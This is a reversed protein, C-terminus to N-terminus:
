RGAEPGPSPRNSVLLLGRQQTDTRESWLDKLRVLFVPRADLLHLEGRYRRWLQERDRSHLVVFRRGDQDLFAAVQEVDHLWRVQKGTYYVFGQGVDRWLGIADGERWESAIRRALPRVPKFRELDHPVTHVALLMYCAASSGALAACVRLPRGKLQYAVMLLAGAALVAAPLMHVSLLPREMVRHLFLVLLAATAPLLGATLWCALAPARPRKSECARDFVLGVLLAIAPYLPLLYHPLKYRSSSFVVLVVLFWCVAFLGSRLLRPELSRRDRWLMWLAAPMFFLTWPAADAPWVKFFYLPGRQPGPFEAAGYRAVLEHFLAADLYARGHLMLMALYWPLAVALALPVGWLARLRRVGHWQRSACLWVLWVGLPLLGVPGKTLVALGVGAWGILAFRLRADQLSRAFGYLALLGFMLTPVDTLGHRSYIVFRFSTALAAAAVLAARRNLLSLGLGYVLLVCAVGSLAVPLRVAFESDGFVLVSPAQMWYILIPKAFRPQDNFWPTLWDGRLIMQRTAEAFRAEDPEWLSSSGLGALLSASCVLLLLGISRSHKPDAV